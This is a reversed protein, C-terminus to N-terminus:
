SNVKAFKWCSKDIMHNKWVLFDINNSVSLSVNVNQVSKSIKFRFYLMSGVCKPLACRLAYCFCLREQIQICACWKVNTVLPDELLYLWPGTKNPFTKTKRWPAPGVINHISKSQLSPIPRKTWPYSLWTNSVLNWRNCNTCKWRMGTEFPCIDRKCSM